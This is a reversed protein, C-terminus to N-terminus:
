RRCSLVARVAMLASGEGLVRPRSAAVLLLLCSQGEDCRGGSGARDGQENAANCRIPREDFPLRLPHLVPVLELDIAVFGTLQVFVISLSPVLASGNM